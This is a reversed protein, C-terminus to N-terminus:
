DIWEFIESTHTKRLYKQGFIKFKDITPPLHDIPISQLQNCGSIAVVKLMTQSLDPFTKIPCDVLELSKSNILTEALNNDSFNCQQLSVHDATVNDLFRDLNVRSFPIAGVGTIPPGSIKLFGFNGSLRVGNFPSIWTFIGESLTGSFDLSQNLFMNKLSVYEISDSVSEIHFQTCSHLSLKRLAPCSLRLNGLYVPQRAVVNLRELNSCGEFIPSIKQNNAHEPNSHISVDKLKPCGSFDLVDGAVPM